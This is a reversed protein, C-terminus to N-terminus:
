LAGKSLDSIMSTNRYPAAAGLRGPVSSNTLEWRSSGRNVPRACDAPM